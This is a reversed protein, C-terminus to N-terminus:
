ARGTEGFSYMLKRRPEFDIGCIGGAALLM